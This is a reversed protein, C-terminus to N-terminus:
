PGANLANYTAFAANLATYTAYGANMTIYAWHSITVVDMLLGAPKQSLAAAETAATDPTEDTFTAVTLHYAGTDRELLIVTQTGTLTQKVADIIAQPTGRRWGAPTRIAQRAVSEDQGPAIQVGVLQGLWRLAWTPARDADLMASWGPGADTDRVVSDIQEFGRSLAELYTALSGDDDDVLYPAFDALLSDLATV